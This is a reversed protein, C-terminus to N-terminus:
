QKTEVGAETMNRTEEKTIEKKIRTLRLHRRETKNATQRFTESTNFLHVHRM